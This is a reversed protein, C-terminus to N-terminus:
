FPVKIRTATMNFTEHSGLWEPFFLRAAFTDLAAEFEILPKVLDVASRPTPNRLGRPHLASCSTLIPM